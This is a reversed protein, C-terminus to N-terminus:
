NDRRLALMTAALLAVIAVAVGFGPTSEDDDAGTDDDSHDDDAGNADDDGNADIDDDDGNPADDDGNEDDASVSLTGSAEDEDTEVSWDIDGEAATDFDYSESISDGADLDLDDGDVEEGDITVTYNSTANEDGDNSVTVDLAADDNVSVDSPADADISIGADEADDSSVFVDEVDQVNDGTGADARLSRIEEGAEHQSLDFSTTLTGDGDVEADATYIEATARLRFDGETGPALNTEATLESENSNEIALHDEDDIDGVFEVDSEEVSFQSDTSEDDNVYPNDDGVIFTVDWTEDADLDNETADVVVYFRNEDEDVVFNDSSLDDADFSDASGYRPEDTDEFELELAAEGTWEGDDDFAYGYIGSAEVGVVLLDEDAVYDRDTASDEINAVDVDGVDFNDGPLAWTKMDGTSRETLLLVAADTEDVDEGDTPDETYVELEFDSELLQDGDLANDDDIVEVDADESSFAESVDDAEYSNFEVTVDDADDYDSIELTANYYDEDETLEVYMEDTATPEVAFGATDGINQQYTSENFQADADVEEGVPIEAADSATTDTVDVTFEYDGTRQDDFDATLEDGDSVDEVLVADDSDGDAEFIESLDDENLTENELEGSVHISVNEDRPEDSVDEFTLATEDNQEVADDDFGVEIKHENVWFTTSTADEDDDVGEIYYRGDDLESTDLTAAGDTVRLNAVVEGDQKLDASSHLENIEVEQGIWLDDIDDADADFEADADAIAAGSFTAAMAFVSMVM